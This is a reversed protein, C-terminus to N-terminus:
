QYSKLYNFNYFFFISINGHDFTSLPVSQHNVFRRITEPHPHHYPNDKKASIIALKPNTLNLFADSSSYKSGHHAVKLVDVPLDELYKDYKAEMKSSIDGTFLYNLGNIRSYYTLSNDNKDQAHEKFLFDIFTLNNFRIEKTKNKITKEVKFTKKLDLEGGAHDIDDHTIVLYKIQKIRQAKLYPVIINQVTKTKFPQGVDILMAENSFMPKIIICDGQGINLYTVQGLCPPIFYYLTMFIIPLLLTKKTKKILFFSFLLYYLICIIIPLYGLEIIINYNAIWKLFSEFYNIVVLGFPLLFSLYQCTFVVLYLGYLIPLFIIQFIISFPAIFYNINTILPIMGLFIITNFMIKNKQYDNPILIIITSIIFTLHFSSTLVSLPNFGLIIIASLAQKQLLSLKNNFYEHNFIILLLARLAPISFMLSKAYLFLCILIILELLYDNKIFMLLGKLLKYLKNFHFGSIVVLHIIALNIFSDIVNNDINTKDMFFLYDFYDNVKNHMKSLRPQQKIFKLHDDKVKYSIGKSRLYTNMDFLTNNSLYALPKFDNKVLVEDNINLEQKTEIIICGQKNCGYYDYKNLKTIRFQYNNFVPKVLKIELYLCSLIIIILLFVFIVRKKIFLYIMMIMVVLVLISSHYYYALMSIIISFSIVPLYIIM